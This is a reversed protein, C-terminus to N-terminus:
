RQLTHRRCGLKQLALWLFEIFANKHKSVSSACFHRAEDRLDIWRRTSVLFSPEFHIPQHRLPWAEFNEFREGAIKRKTSLEVSRCSTLTLQAGIETKVLTQFSQGVGAEKESMKMKEYLFNLYGDPNSSSDDSYFALVSVVLGGGPGLIKVFTQCAEESRHTPAM